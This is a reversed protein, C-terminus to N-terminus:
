EKIAKWMEFIDRLVKQANLLNDVSNKANALVLNSLVFQYLKNLNSSFEYNAEYNLSSNLSEVINIVKNIYIVKNNINNNDLAYKALRIKNLANDLLMSILEYSSAENVKSKFSIQQYKEINNM